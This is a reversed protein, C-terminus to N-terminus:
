RYLVQIAQKHMSATFPLHGILEGDCQFNISEHSSQTDLSVCATQMYSARKHHNIKGNALYPLSLVRSLLPMDGIDIFDFLGDNIKAEPAFRMGGGGFQTICAMTLLSKQEEKAPSNNCAIKMPKACYSKLCILLYRYYVLRNGGANGMKELLYSDFGCGICNLFYHQKVEGDKHFMVKGIDQHQRKAKALFRIFAKPRKPIRYMRAWDNGTGWPLATLTIKKPDPSHMIAQVVENLSGDGGVVSIQTFGQQIAAEALQTAHGAYESEVLRFELSSKELSHKLQQLRRQPKNGGATPNVIFYWPTM